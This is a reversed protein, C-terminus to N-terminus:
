FEEMLAVTIEYKGSDLELVWKAESGPTHKNAIRVRKATNDIHFGIGAATQFDLRNAEDWSNNLDFDDDPSIEWAIAALLDAINRRARDFM